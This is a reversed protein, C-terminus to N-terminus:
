SDNKLLPSYSGHWLIAINRGAISFSRFLKSIGEATNEEPIIDTKIGHNALAIKPKLSRAIVTTQQLAEALKKEIGISKAMTMLSYVGPGTMFVVYDVKKELLKNIFFEAEKSIDPRAEIGVTPALYPRGGFSTVVHALESARRSGTIAITLGALSTM